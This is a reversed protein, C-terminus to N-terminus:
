FGFDLGWVGFGLGPSPRPAVCALTGLVAIPGALPALAPIAMGAALLGGPQRRGLPSDPPPALSDPLRLAALGDFSLEESSCEGDGEGEGDGPCESQSSDSDAPHHHRRRRPESGRRSAARSCGPPAPPNSWMNAVHQIVDPDRPPAAARNAAATAEMREKLDTGALHRESVYLHAVSTSPLATAFREWAARSVRATEGVHVAWIGRQRQLLALLRDLQADGVGSEFAQMYVVEVRANPELAELM